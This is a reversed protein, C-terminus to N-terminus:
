VNIAVTDGFPAKGGAVTVWLTPIGPDKPFDGALDTLYIIKDPIIDHKKIYDFPPVFSTGGRGHVEMKVIEDGRDYERVFKENVAADCPVVWIKEPQIGTSIANIEGLFQELAQDSVSGSTDIFVALTGVGIKEISPLYLGDDVYHKNPRRYSYDYPRDGQVYRWMVSRWDVKPERMKKILAELGGPIKGQTLEAQAAAAALAEDAEAQREAAGEKTMDKPDIVGGWGCQPVKDAVQELYTYIKEANMNPMQQIIAPKIKGQLHRQISQITIADAPLKMGADTLIHNISLDGAINWLKPDRNDRRFMHGLGYHLGEHALVGELEDEPTRDVFDRHWYINDGDTAMTTIQEADKGTVEVLNMRLCLASFFQQKLMLRM